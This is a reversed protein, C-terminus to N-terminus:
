RGRKVSKLAPFRTVLEDLRAENAAIRTELVRIREDIPLSALFVDDAVHPGYREQVDAFFREGRGVIWDPTAISEDNYLDQWTTM